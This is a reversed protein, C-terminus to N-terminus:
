AELGRASRCSKEIFRHVTSASQVHVTHLVVVDTFYIYMYMHTAIGNWCLWLTTRPQLTITEVFQYFGIAPTVVKSVNIYTQRVMKVTCLVILHHSAANVDIIFYYHAIIRPM